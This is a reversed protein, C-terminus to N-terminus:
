RKTISAAAQDMLAFTEDMLDANCALHRQVAQELRDEDFVESSNRLLGIGVRSVFEKTAEREDQPLM